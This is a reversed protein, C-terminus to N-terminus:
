PIPLPQGSDVVLLSESISRHVSDVAQDLLPHGPPYIAHKHIAVSLDMLFEALERSLMSQKSAGDAGDGPEADAGLSLVASGSLRAM